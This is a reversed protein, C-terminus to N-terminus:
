SVATAAQPQAAASVGAESAAFRYPGLRSFLAAACLVALLFCLLPATYSGTRDFGLGMLYAGAAGALVFSGFIFGSIQAFCRLGFYRSSLYAVLDADAGMGLGALFAGFFPLPGAHVTLLVIIGLAAGASFCVAIRPGSYRDLFFGTGVRGMLLGAGAFSSALAAMRATAGADSLMAPMHIVCAHVSAGLLVVAGILWWFTTTRCAEQLTLGSRLDRNSTAPSGAAGDPLLGLEAPRDKLLIAVVPLTLALMAAGYLSYAARWNLAAILRQMISPMVMAAAGTGVMMAALASGRRRDFWNSIATSYPIPGCGIGLLGGIANFLYIGFVSVTVFQNALLWVAFLLTGPLVIKRVGFRDILRGVLPSALASVVNHLSFALAIAARGTHFEKLFHPLFVPFSFVLIPPGGLGVGIAAALAIWWGYFVHKRSNAMGVRAEAAHM